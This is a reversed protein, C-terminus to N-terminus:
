FEKSHRSLFNVNSIFKFLEEQESAGQGSSSCHSNGTSELIKHLIVAQKFFQAMASTIKFIFM